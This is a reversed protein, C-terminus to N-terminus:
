GDPLDPPLRVAVADGQGAPHFADGSQVARGGPDVVKVAGLDADVAEDFRLLVQAPARALEAGAAPETGELEAHAAARAPLALVLILLACTLPGVRSV